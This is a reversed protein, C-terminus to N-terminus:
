CRRSGTPVHIEWGIRDFHDMKLQIVRFCFLKSCGIVLINGKRLRGTAKGGTIKHGCAGM